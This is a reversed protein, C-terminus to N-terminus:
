GVRGVEAWVVWGREKANQLAADGLRQGSGGDLVLVFRVVVDSTLCKRDIVVAQQSSANIVRDTSPDLLIWGLLLNALAIPVPATFGEQMLAGVCLPSGLFWASSADIEVIRSMICASDHRWDVVSALCVPLLHVVSPVSTELGSPTSAASFPFADTFLTSHGVVVYCPADRLPPPCTALCLGRWSAPDSVLVHFASCGLAAQSAGDLRCVVVRSQQRKQGICPPAKAELSVHHFSLRLIEMPLYLGGCRPM